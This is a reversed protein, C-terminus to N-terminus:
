LQSMEAEWRLGPCYSYNELITLIDGWGRVLIKESYRDKGAKLFMAEDKYAQRVGL